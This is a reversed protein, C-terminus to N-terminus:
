DTNILDVPHWYLSKKDVSDLHFQKNLKAILAANPDHKHVISLTQRWLRNEKAADSEDLKTKM